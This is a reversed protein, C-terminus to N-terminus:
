KEKCIPNAEQGKDVMIFPSHHHPLLTCIVQRKLICAVVSLSIPCRVSPPSPEDGRYEPCRGPLPSHIPGQNDEQPSTLKSHSCSPSYFPYSTDLLASCPPLSKTNVLESDGRPCVPLHCRGPWDATLCATHDQANALPVHTSTIATVM